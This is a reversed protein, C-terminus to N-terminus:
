TPRGNDVTPTPYAVAKDVRSALVLTDPPAAVPRHMTVTGTLVIDLGDDSNSTDAASAGSYTGTFGVVPAPLRATLTGVITTM